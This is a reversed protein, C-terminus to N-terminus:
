LKAIDGTEEDLTYYTGNRSWSEALARFGAGENSVMFRLRTATDAEEFSPADPTTTTFQKWRSAREAEARQVAAAAKEAKPAAKPQTPQNALYRGLSAPTPYGQVKGAARGAAMNAEHKRRHKQVEAVEMGFEEALRREAVEWGEREKGAPAAARTSLSLKEKSLKKLTHLNCQVVQMGTHVAKKSQERRYRRVSPLDDASVVEFALPPAAAVECLTVLRAVDRGQVRQRHITILGAELLHKDANHVTRVACGALRAVLEAAAPFTRANGKNSSLQAYALLVSRVSPRCKKPLREVLSLMNKSLWIFGGQGVEKGAQTPLERQTFSPQFGATIGTTVVSNLASEFSPACLAVTQTKAKVTPVVAAVSKTNMTLNSSAADTALRPRRTKLHYAEVADHGSSALRITSNPQRGNTALSLSTSLATLREKEVNAWFLERGRSCRSTHLTTDRWWSCGPQTRQGM